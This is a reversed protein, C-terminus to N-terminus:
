VIVVLWLLDVLLWVWVVYHVVGIGLGFMLVFWVASPLVLCWLWLLYGVVYLSWAFLWDCGLRFWRSLGGALTRWLAWGVDWVGMMGARGTTVRDFGIFANLGGLGVVLVWLWCDFVLGNGSVGVLGFLFGLAFGRLWILFWDFLSFVLDVSSFVGFMDFWVYFAVVLLSFVFRLTWLFVFLVGVM